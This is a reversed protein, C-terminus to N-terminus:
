AGGHPLPSLGTRRQLTADQMGYAQQPLPVGPEEQDSASQPFIRRGFGVNHLAHRQRLADWGGTDPEFIL